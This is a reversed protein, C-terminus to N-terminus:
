KDYFLAFWFLKVWTKKNQYWSAETLRKFIEEYVYIM